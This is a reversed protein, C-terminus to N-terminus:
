STSSVQESEFRAPRDKIFGPDGTLLSCNNIMALTAGFFDAYSIPSRAKLGAATLLLKEDIRLLLSHIQGKVNGM